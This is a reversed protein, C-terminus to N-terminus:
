KNMEILDSTIQGAFSVSTHFFMIKAMNHTHINIALEGGDHIHMAMKVYCYHLKSLAILQM